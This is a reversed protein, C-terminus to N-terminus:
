QQTTPSNEQVTVSMGDQLSMAGDVVIIEGPEIGSLVEVKGQSRQGLQVTRKHAINKEDLVFAFQNNRLPAISREPVMLANRAPQKVRVNILMGPRLTLEHEKGTNPLYARLSIARTAPDIRNDIFNIKGEFIKGPYTQSTAEIAMGDKLYPLFTESVSFDVKVRSLDDLTTIVTGPAVLTGVSVKRVGLVGSFPARITYDQLNAQTSELKARAANVVSKQKDFDTQSVAKREILKLLHDLQRQEEALNVRQEEVNAKQQGADLEVLVAGKHIQQGDEFHVAQIKATVTASIQVAENATTTGLAEISDNIEQAVVKESTVLIQYSGKGSDNNAQWFHSILLYLLLLGFVSFVIHQLALKNALQIPLFRPM